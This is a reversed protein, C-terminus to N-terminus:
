SHESRKRNWGPPTRGGPFSEEMRPSRQLRSEMRPNTSALEGTRWGVKLPRCVMELPWTSGTRPSGFIWVLKSELAEDDFEFQENTEM